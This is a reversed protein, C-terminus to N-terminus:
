SPPRANAPSQRLTVSMSQQARWRKHLINATQFYRGQRFSRHVAAADVHSLKEIPAGFGRKPRAVTAPPLVELGLQRTLWKGIRGKVLVSRPLRLAWRVLELDLWPVRVEVSHQMGARDAYALGLGPMYVAVDVARFRRLLPWTTPTDDFVSRHRDWVIADGVEGETCDLANARDRATSYSCLVMYSSLPHSQSSALLLRHLYETRVHSSGVSTVAKALVAGVAGGPLRAALPGLVQRRYGAFLEDGGQGSLLVKTGDTHAKRAILRCLDVAPDAFLDGSPPLAEVDVDDGPIYTVPLDFHQELVRVAATDEHYGESSPSSSWDITYARDLHDAAAWWILSSDLGGSAMIGIPVDSLLQRRVAERVREGIEARAEAPEIDPQAAAERLLNCWVRNTVSGDKWQLLEGPRLSHAGTFPTRPDPIWLFTLFQALAVPDPSGVPAGATELARLESAFWLATRNSAWFLPKVGVPDRALTLEGREVDLLAIAFIGNLMQLAGEEHDEWLHLIVEGDSDSAFRHGRQECRHRLEPSNYIEGNFILLLSGDENRLPQNGADTLDNIALRTHLLTASWQEGSLEQSGSADPGRHALARLLASRDGDMRERSIWGAIGCM